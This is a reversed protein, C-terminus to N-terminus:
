PKRSPQSCTTGQSRTSSDKWKRVLNGMCLILMTSVVLEQLMMTSTSTQTLWSTIHSMDLTTHRCSRMLNRNYPKTLQQVNHPHRSIQTNRLLIDKIKDPTAEQSISYLTKQVSGGSNFLLEERHNRGHNEIMSFMEDLWPLCREPNSGDFREIKKFAKNM